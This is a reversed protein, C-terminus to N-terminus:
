FVEPFAVAAGEKELREIARTAEAVVAGAEAALKFAAKRDEPRPMKGANRAMGDHLRKTGDLVATQMVLMKECRAQLNTLLRESKEAARLGAPLTLVVVFALTKMTGARNIRCSETM